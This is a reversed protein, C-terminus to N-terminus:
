YVRPLTEREPTSVVEVNGCAGGLVEGEGVGVGGAEGGLGAGGPVAGGGAQPQRRGRAPCWTKRGQGTASSVEGWKSLLRRARKNTRLVGGRRAFDTHTDLSQAGLRAGSEM